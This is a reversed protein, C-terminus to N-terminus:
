PPFFNLKNDTDITCFGNKFSWFNQISDLRDGRIRIQIDNKILKIIKDHDLNSNHFTARNCAFWCWFLIMAILYRSLCVGTSSEVFSFPYYVSKPCVSFPSRLFTSILSSFHYWVKVIKPWKLVCHEITESRNCVACKDSNIYGWSMLAYRVRIARHILLWVLDNKKNEILKLRSKRWVWAFRNPSALLLKYLNKCSLDDPLKGYKNHLKQFVDLCKRYFNTLSASSPCLNTPFCFRNDLIALKYGLFYRALYHWKSSGFDDRFDTFNSLHLSECKTNFDVINLGGSELSACCRERSVSEMKGKWIFPWVISKIKDHVWSPPPIVKAVHWLRSAGLM